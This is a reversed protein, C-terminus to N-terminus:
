NPDFRSQWIAAVVAVTPLLPIAYRATLTPVTLVHFSELIMIAGWGLLSLIAVAPAILLKRPKGIM